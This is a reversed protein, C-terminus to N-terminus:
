TIAVFRAPTPKAREAHDAVPDICCSSYAFLAPALELPSVSRLAAAISHPLHFPHLFVM